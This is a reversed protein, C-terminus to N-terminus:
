RSIRQDVFFPEETQRSRHAQHPAKRFFANALSLSHLMLRPYAPANNLNLPSDSHVIDGFLSGEHIQELRSSQPSSLM